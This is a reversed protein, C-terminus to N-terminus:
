VCSFGYRLGRATRRHPWHQLRDFAKALSRRQRAVLSTPDLQAKAEM